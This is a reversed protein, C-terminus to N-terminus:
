IDTGTFLIRVWDYDIEDRKSSATADLEAAFPNFGDGMRSLFHENAQPPFASAAQNVLAADQTQRSKSGKKGQSAKGGGGKKGGSALEDMDLDMDELAEKKKLFNYLVDPHNWIKCCVAFAKLPNSVSRQKNLLEQIFTGYLTRQVRTMRLLLVHEHKAPLNLQLVKHSRRQVFGKLQQHLVHARHKMLRVDRPTSDTCQGNLIPREFMNAFETKTGLFSPRVFDVM